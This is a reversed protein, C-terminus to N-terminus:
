TGTIGHLEQERQSFRNDNTIATNPGVAALPNSAYDNGAGVIGEKAYLTGTVATVQLTDGPGKAGGHIEKLVNGNGDVQVLFNHRLPSGVVPFSWMEIRYNGPM